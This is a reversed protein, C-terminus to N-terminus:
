IREYIMDISDLSILDFGSNFGNWYLEDGLDVSFITKATLGGDNSFYCDVNSATSNQGDGLNQLQGNVYISLRSYDNPSYNITLGTPQFNQGILTGLPSLNIQSYEPQALASSPVWQFYGMSDVSLFYGATAGGNSGSDM